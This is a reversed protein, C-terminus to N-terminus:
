RKQQSCRQSARRESHCLSDTAQLPLTIIFLSGMGKRSEVRITGGHRRIIGHAVSLGLGTGRGEPKTTFFPDFVYPLDAPDIGEGTDRVRIVVRNRQQQIDASITVEGPPRIAQISNIMLNLFVETMKQGDMPLIIRDGVDSTITIRDPLESRVLMIAKAVVESLSTPVIAFDQERSYELLGRVIRSARQAEDDITQILKRIYEMDGESLEALAIQSSTSINNLPNNLQHATGSAITGLSSLKHAELLRVQDAELERAISNFAHFVSTAEYSYSSSSEPSIPEFSGEALSRATQELKKLPRFIGRWLSFLMGALLLISALFFAILQQRFRSVMTRLLEQEDRLLRRSIKQLAEGAQDVRLLHERTVTGKRLAEQLRNMTASYKRSAGIMEELARSAHDDAIVRSLALRKENIKRRLKLNNELEIEGHGLVYEEETQRLMEILTNLQGAQVMHDLERNFNRFDRLPVLSLLGLITIYAIGNLILRGLHTVPFFMIQRCHRHSHHQVPPRRVPFPKGTGAMRRKRGDGAMAGKGPINNCFAVMICHAVGPGERTVAGHIFSDPLRRFPPPLAM